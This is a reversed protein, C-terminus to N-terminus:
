FSCVVIPAQSPYAKIERRTECMEKQLYLQWQARVGFMDASFVAFHVPALKLAAEKLKRTGAEELFERGAPVLRLNPFRKKRYVELATAPNGWQADVFVVGPRKETQLIAVVEKVGFGTAWDTLYNAMAWPTSREIYRGPSLGMLFDQYGWHLLTVGGVLLLARRGLQGTQLHIADWLSVGMRALLALLPVVIATNLMYENFARLLFIVGIAGAVCMCALTLEPSNQRRFAFWGCGALFLTLAWTYYSSIYHAVIGLNERWMHIPFALLEDLSLVWRSNFRDRASNFTSPLIGRATLTSCVIVAVIVFLNMAISRWKNRASVGEERTGLGSLPLCLSLTLLLFGSQKFLLLAVGFLVAVVAWGWWGPKDRRMAKLLAWYLFPATSILFTEATFQDNHFLVAPCVLYLLATVVGEREGFLERAFLYFGFFGAVSVLLAVVRGAILPDNGWEIVPAAMWYILPPKWDTFEGHMSIFKNQHWDEHIRQSYHLYIAEDNFIPFAKLSLVRSLLFLAFLILLANRCAKALPLFRM